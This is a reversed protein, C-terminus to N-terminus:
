EAGADLDVWISKEARVAWEVCRFKKATASM